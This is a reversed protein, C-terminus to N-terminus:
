EAGESPRTTRPEDADAGAEAATSAEVTPRGRGTLSRARVARRPTPRTEMVLAVASVKDDERLNMLRCARRRAARSRSARAREHAPGDREALHLGAGPARARDARRRAGGKKETLQITKVGKTGRGKVPYDAIATRKGFGNETVVLLETDDRAVDMALVGNDGRSVNMGRVGATDRGM